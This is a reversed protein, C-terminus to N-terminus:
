GRSARWSIKGSDCDRAKGDVEFRGAIRLKGSAKHRHVEGGIKFSRVGDDAKFSFSGSEIPVSGKTGTVDAATAHDHGCDLPVREALISRVKRGGDRKVVTFAVQSDPAGVVGGEYQKAGGASAAAPAALATAAFVVAATRRM